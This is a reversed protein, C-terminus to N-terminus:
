DAKAKNRVIHTEIFAVLDQESAYITFLVFLLAIAGFAAQAAMNFLGDLGFILSTLGTMFGAGALTVVVRLPPVLAGLPRMEEEARRAGEGKGEGDAFRAGEAAGLSAYFGRIHYLSFVIRALMNLCNALVFVLTGLGRGLYVVGVFGVCTGVLLAKHRSM